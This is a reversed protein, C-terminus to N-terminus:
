LPKNVFEVKSIDVPTCPYSDNWKKKDPKHAAKKVAPKKAVPKNAKKEAM